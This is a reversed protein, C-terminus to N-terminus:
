TAISAYGGHFIMANLKSTNGTIICMTVSFYSQCYGCVRIDFNNRCQNVYQLMKDKNEPIHYM